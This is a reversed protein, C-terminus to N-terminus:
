RPRPIRPIPYNDVVDLVLATVSEPFYERGRVPKEGALRLTALVDTELAFAIGAPLDRLFRVVTTFGDRRHRTLRQRGAGNTIGCKILSADENAVLYFTDWEKNACFRCVGHGYLVHSPRPSCEHGAACRVRHPRSGGLYKPELLVAGMEELRVRFSAEATRACRNACAECIGHGMRVNTPRPACQHGNVCIVRHPTGAGLWESELLTAGLEVLRARFKEEAVISSRGACVLCVGQGRQVSNPRPSCEHGSACIVRHPRDTGLWTPEILTAGLKDLQDRFAAQSVRPNKGVCTLCVGQGGIVGAPRPSCEHGAACIVRHPHQSGLWTDELLTAGLENLRALFRNHSRESRHSHYKLM